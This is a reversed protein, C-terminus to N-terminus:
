PDIGDEAVSLNFFALYPLGGHCRGMILNVIEAGKNIKVAKLYVASNSIYHINFRQALLPLCEAPMHKHYVSMIHPLYHLRQIIGLCYFALGCHNNCPSDLALPNGYKFAFVLIM